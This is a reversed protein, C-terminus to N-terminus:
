RRRRELNAETCIAMVDLFAQYDRAGVVFPHPEHSARTRVRDLRAQISDALPHNQLLVEVGAKQTAEKFRAVSAHYERLGEDSIFGPTLVTGGYLAAMRLQGRDTVPFIFGMAGPTHGPISVPQVTLDGLVVPRGDVLVQDRKPPAAPAAGQRGGRAPAPNEILAWDPASVYVSAGYREQLFASGGFHDAHGHGILVAKVQAPDLGLAKLGPLLVSEVQSADLADILVLGSSTRIVYAVTGANGIAFVNDFIRTPAIPPDGPSNARPAECFFHAAEAWATGAVAKARAVIAQVAPSDPASAPAQASASSVSLCSVAIGTLLLRM